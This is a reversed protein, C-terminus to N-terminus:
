PTSLLLGMKVELKFILKKRGAPPHCPAPSVPALAQWAVQRRSGSVSARDM